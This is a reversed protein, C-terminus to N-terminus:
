LELVSEIVHEPAILHNVYGSRLVGNLAKPKTNASCIGVVHRVRRLLELPIQIAYDTDSHIITGNGDVFYNLIRGVAKQKVLLDGYRAESAFDPVSPFNGINVLAADLHEWSQYVTRYNELGMTLNLEQESLVSAPSYLFEPEAQSHEAIVRVLENSHYNKLGVGGNGILPCVHTGIKVERGCTEIRSVLDGIIHGWGIGIRNQRLGELYRIAGDAVAANTLQDNGGDAAAAAGWLGYKKRLKEITLEGSGQDTGPPQIRIRVIGMDKAQKLLKSVMPRSVGFQKAIENQSMDEEYYLRAAKVLREIRSDEKM